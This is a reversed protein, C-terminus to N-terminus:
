PLCWDSRASERRDATGGAFGGIAAAAGGVEPLLARAAAARVHVDAEDHVGLLEALASGLAAAGDRRAPQPADADLIQRCRALTAVVWFVAERHDGDAVLRRSGEIAISRAAPTVDGSFPFPTRAVAAAADFVVELRGLHREVTARGVDACGLAALLREHLDARGAAHLVARAARYRLRVTPPRLAAVLVVNTLLSAPFLWGLVMEPGPRTPGPLPDLAGLRHEIRALVDACRRQVAEPRAFTPAIQGHLRRLHGTPDALVGDVAFCPATHFSRAVREPDALEDEPVVDVDLLAGAHLLKGPKAPVSGAVVVRVDVDSWPPQVEDPERHPASGALFAGRFGATGVAHRRVWDGAADRAEGVLV